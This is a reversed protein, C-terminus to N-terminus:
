DVADGDSGKAIAPATKADLVCDLTTLIDKNAIAWPFTQAAEKLVAYDEDRVLLHPANEAVASELQDLMRCRRRFQDIEIAKTPSAGIIQRLVEVSPFPGAKVALPILKM